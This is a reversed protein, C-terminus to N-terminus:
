STIVPDLSADNLSKIFYTNGIKYCNNKLFLTLDNIYETRKLGLDTQLFDIISNEYICGGKDDFFKIFESELAKNQVAIVESNYNTIRNGDLNSNNISPSNMEIKEEKKISTTQPISDKFSNNPVQKIPTKIVSEEIIIKKDHNILPHKLVPGKIGEIIQDWFTSNEKFFDIFKQIFETDTKTEKLYWKGLTTIAM